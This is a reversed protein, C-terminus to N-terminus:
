KKNPFHGFIKLYCFYCYPHTLAKVTTSNNLINEYAVMDETKPQRRPDMTTVNLAIAVPGLNYRYHRCPENRVEKEVSLGHDNILSTM